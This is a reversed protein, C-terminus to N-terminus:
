ILKKNQLVDGTEQEVQKVASKIKSHWKNIKEPSVDLLESLGSKNNIVQLFKDWFEEDVNMGTKIVSIVNDSIENEMISLRDMNEWLKCFSVM